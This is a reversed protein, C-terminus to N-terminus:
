RSLQTHVKQHVKLGSSYSFTKGCGPIDCCFPKVGTHEYIHVKLQDSRGFSKNCGEHTCVYPKEGTHIRMHKRLNGKESFTKDCNEVTCVYPREGTHVRIHNKLAQSENFSKGCDAYTCVHPKKEGTHNRLHSKLRWPKNYVKDCGPHTCAYIATPDYVKQKKEEHQQYALMQQIDAYLKVRGDKDEEEYMGPFLDKTIPRVKIVIGLTGCSPVLETDDSVITWHYREEQDSEDDVTKFFFIGLPGHYFRRIDGLTIDNAAKNLIIGPPILSSSEDGEIFWTVITSQM